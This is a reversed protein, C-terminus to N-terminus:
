SRDRHYSMVYRKHTTLYKKSTLMLMADLITAGPQGLSARAADKLYMSMRDTTESKAVAGIFTVLQSALLNAAGTPDDESASYVDIESWSLPIAYKFHGFDLDLVHDNPMWDPLADRACGILEGDAVDIVFASFGSRIAGVVAM